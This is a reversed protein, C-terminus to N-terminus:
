IIANNNDQLLDCPYQSLIPITSTSGLNHVGSKLHCPDDFPPLFWFWFFERPSWVFGGFFGELGLFDASNRLWLFKNGSNRWRSMYYSECIKLNSQIGLFINGFNKLGFIDRFQFNWIWLFGKIIGTVQFGSANHCSWDSASGLHPYHCTMLISNRRENRLHWKLSFGTTANCHWRKEWAAMTVMVLIVMWCRQRWQWWWWWWWWWMVMIAGDGAVDRCWWWWWRAMMPALIVVMVM